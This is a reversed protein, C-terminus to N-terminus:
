GSRGRIRESLGSRRRADQDCSSLRDGGASGNGYRCQVCGPNATPPTRGAGPCIAPTLTRLLYDRIAPSATALLRRSSPSADHGTLDVLLTVRKDSARMLDAARSLLNTAAHIDVREMARQGAAALHEAARAALPSGEEDGLDARYRHAQELHYGVIEEFEPLRDAARGKLWDAFRELLV